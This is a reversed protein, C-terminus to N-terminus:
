EGWVVSTVEGLGEFRALAKEGLIRQMHGCWTYVVVSGSKQLGVAVLTKNANFAFSRPYLGGAPDLEEFRLPSLSFTALSDSPISTMNDHHLNKLKFATFNRNSVLLNNGPALAIEAPANFASLPNQRRRQNDGLTSLPATFATLNLGIATSNNPLPHIHYGTLTSSLESVLYYNLSVTPK